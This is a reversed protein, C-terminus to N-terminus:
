NVYLNLNVRNNVENIKECKAGKEISGFVICYGKEEIEKIIVSKNVVDVEYYPEYFECDKCNM